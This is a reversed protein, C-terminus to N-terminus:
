NGLLEERLEQFDVVVKEALSFDLGATVRNPVIWTRMGAASAALLGNHSDEIVLCGRPEVALRRAAALYLDPAPKIRPADGRCIVDAFYGRLGLKELWGDV